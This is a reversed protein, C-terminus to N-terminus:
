CTTWRRPCKGSHGTDAGRYQRRAGNRGQTRRRHGASQGPNQQRRLRPYLRPSPLVSTSPSLCTLPWLAAAAGASANLRTTALDVTCARSGCRRAVRGCFQRTARNATQCQPCPLTAPRRPGGGAVGGGRRGLAGGHSRQCQRTPIAAGPMAATRRRSSAPYQGDRCLPLWLGAVNQDGAAAGM